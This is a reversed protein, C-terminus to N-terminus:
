RGHTGCFLFSMVRFLGGLKCTAMMKFGVILVLDVGKQTAELVKLETGAVRPLLGLSELGREFLLVDHDVLGRKRVVAPGDGGLAIKWAGM